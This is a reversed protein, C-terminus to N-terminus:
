LLTSNNHKHAYSVMYTLIYFPCFNFCIHQSSMSVDVLKFSVTNTMQILALFNAIESWSGCIVM